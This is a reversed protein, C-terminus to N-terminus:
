TVGHLPSVSKKPTCHHGAEKLAELQSLATDEFIHSLGNNRCALFALQHATPTVCHGPQTLQSVETPGCALRPPRQMCCRM